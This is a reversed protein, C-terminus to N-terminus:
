QNTAGAALTSGPWYNTLTYGPIGLLIGVGQMSPADGLTSRPTSGISYAVGHGETDRQTLTPYHLVHEPGGFPKKAYVVWDQRFLTRLFVSFTKEHALPRCAGFFVLKNQRFAIQSVM